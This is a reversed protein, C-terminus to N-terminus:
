KLLSMGRLASTDQPSLMLANELCEMASENDGLYLDTWGLSLNVEYLGPYQNHATSLYTKARAYEARSLYIQGLRLNADYQLPNIKLIDQYTAVIDDWKEQAALPLTLGLRAEVSYKNLEAAKTYRAISQDYQKNSYYLWGLRLNVLYNNDGDSGITLMDQIADGLKGQREDQISTNTFQIANSGNNTRAILLIGCGAAIVVGLVIVQRISM